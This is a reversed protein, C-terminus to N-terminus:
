VLPLSFLGENYMKRIKEEEGGFVLSNGDSRGFKCDTSVSEYGMAVIVVRFTGSRGVRLSGSFPRTCFFQDGEELEELGEGAVLLCDGEAVYGLSGPTLHLPLLSEGPGAAAALRLEIVTLGDVSFERTRKQGNAEEVHEVCRTAHLAREVSREERPVLLVRLLTSNKLATDHHLVGDGCFVSVAQGAEVQITGGCWDEVRFSGELAVVILVCGRQLQFGWDLDTAGVRVVQLAL